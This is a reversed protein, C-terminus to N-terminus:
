NKDLFSLHPESDIIHGLIHPPAQSALTPHAPHFTYLHSFLQFINLTFGHGNVALTASAPNVRAKGQLYVQSESNELIFKILSALTHIEILLTAQHTLPPPVPKCTSTENYQLSFRM